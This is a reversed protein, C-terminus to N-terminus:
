VDLAAFFARLHQAANKLQTVRQRTMAPEVLALQRDFADLSYREDRLIRRLESYLGEARAAFLASSGLWQEIFPVIAPRIAAYATDTLGSNPMSIRWESWGSSHRYRDAEVRLEVPSGRWVCSVTFYGQEKSIGERDMSVYLAQPTKVIAIESPKAKRTASSM